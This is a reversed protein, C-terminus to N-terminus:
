HGLSVYNSPFLGKEGNKELEGLWWDDDVFEINIIKDNEVFTLENEEGADYDYEATAWPKTEEKPEMTRRPPPPPVSNASSTTNRSPLNPAEEEEEEESEQAASEEAASQNRRPLSPAQEEEQEVAEEEPEEEKVVNRSPLSPAAPSQERVPPPPLNRALTRKPEEEEEDDWDDDNDQDSAPEEIETHMGPLPTGIKKVDNQISRKSPLEDEEVARTPESKSFSKPQIIQPETSSALKEFRSKLDNVDHEGEDEDEDQQENKSPSTQEKELKDESASAAAATKAKKEAWLQAPTKETKFGRVVKDKDNEINFDNQPIPAKTSSKKNLFSDLENDRQLKSQNKLNEIDSKPDFKKNNTGNSFEHVLRPDEKANEEQIVKQLDIKGLPKYTSQNSKLPHKSFDRVEVEPEDWDDNNNDNAVEKAPRTTTELAPTPKPKSELKPAPTPTTKKVPPPTTPVPKKVPKKQSPLTSQISYRAGAANSVKSLLENEDLDDVDRATVQVHYGGLVNNAVTAFNSAFSARQKMPASDPCWGILILKEVDSGPPSVRALGFEVKTEDFSQLFESFDSGTQSPEYEKKANPSIILWSTASDEGRVVKLYEQEIERSHTTCNIPELAM